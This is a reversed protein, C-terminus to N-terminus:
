LDKNIKMDFYIENNYRFERVIKFGYKKYLNIAIINSKSVTLENIKYNSTIYNMIDYSYKNGRYKNMVELNYLFGIETDVSSISAAGIIDREKYFFLNVAENSVWDNENKSKIEEVLLDGM